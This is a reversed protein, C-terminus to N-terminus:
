SSHRTLFSVTRGEAGFLLSGDDRSGLTVHTNGWFVSLATELSKLPVLVQSEAPHGTLEGHIHLQSIHGRKSRTEMRIYHSLHLSVLGSSEPVGSFIRVARKIDSIAVRLGAPEPTAMTKQTNPLAVTMRPFTYSTKGMTMMVCGEYTRVTIEEATCGHFITFLLTADKRRMSCDAYVGELKAVIAGNSTYAGRPTLFFYILNPNDTSEAVKRLCKVVQDYGALPVTEQSVLEGPKEGRFLAIQLAMTKIFIRGGEVVAYLDGDEIRLTMTEQDTKLVASLSNMDFVQPDSFNEIQAPVETHLHSVGDSALLHVAGSGPNLLLSRTVVDRGSRRKVLFPELADRMEATQFTVQSYTSEEEQTGMVAKILQEETIM